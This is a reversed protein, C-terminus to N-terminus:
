NVDRMDETDKGPCGSAASLWHSVVYSASPPPAPPPFVLSVASSAREGGQPPPSRRRPVCACVPDRGPLSTSGGYPLTLLVPDLTCTNGPLNADRPILVTRMATKSSNTCPWNLFFSILIGGSFFNFVKKLNKKKELLLEPLNKMSFVTCFGFFATTNCKFSSQTLLRHRKESHQVTSLPIFTM